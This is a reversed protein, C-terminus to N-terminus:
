PNRSDSDLEYVIPEGKGGKVAVVDVSGELTCRKVEWQDVIKGDKDRIIWYYKKKKTALAIEELARQNTLGGMVFAPEDEKM